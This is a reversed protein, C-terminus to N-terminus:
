NYTEILSLLEEQSTEEPLREVKSRFGAALASREKNRVYIQSAPNNGVVIVVLGPVQGTKEKLRATKEALKKQLKEALGRGDIIQAM